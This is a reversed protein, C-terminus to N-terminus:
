RTKYSVFDCQFAFFRCVLACITKLRGPINLLYAKNHYMMLQIIVRTDECFNKLSIVRMINAADEADPEESFKNALVLCAAAQFISELKKKNDVM